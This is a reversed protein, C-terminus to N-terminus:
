RPAAAMASVTAIYGDIEVSIAGYASVLTPVAFLVDGGVLQQTSAQQAVPVAGVGAGAAIALTFLPASNLSNKFVSVTQVVASTNTFAFGTLNYLMGAPVVFIPTLSPVSIGPGGTNIIQGAFTAM